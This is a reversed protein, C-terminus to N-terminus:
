ICNKKIKKITFAAKEAMKKITVKGTKKKKKSLDFM